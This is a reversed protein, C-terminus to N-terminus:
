HSLSIHREPCRVFAEVRPTSLFLSTVPNSGTVGEKGLFYEVQQAVCAYARFFLPRRPEFERGM